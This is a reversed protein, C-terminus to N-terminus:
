KQIKIPKSPPPRTKLQHSLTKDVTPLQKVLEHCDMNDDSPESDSGSSSDGEGAFMLEKNGQLEHLLAQRVQKAEPCIVTEDPENSFQKRIKPPLSNALEKLEEPVSLFKQILLGRCLDRGMSELM